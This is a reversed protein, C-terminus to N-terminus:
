KYDLIGSLKDFNLDLFFSFFILFFIDLTDMYGSLSELIFCHISSQFLTMILFVNKDSNVAFLINMCTLKMEEYCIDELTESCANLM